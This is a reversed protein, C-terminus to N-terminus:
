LVVGSPKGWITGERKIAYSALLVFYAARAHQAGPKEDAHTLNTKAGCLIPHSAIRRFAPAAKANGIPACVGTGYVGTGRVCNRRLPSAAVSCVVSSSLRFTNRSKRRRTSM